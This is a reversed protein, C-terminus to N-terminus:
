NKIKKAEDFFMEACKGGSVQIFMKKSEKRAGKSWCIGGKQM